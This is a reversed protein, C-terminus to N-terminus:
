VLHDADVTVASSTSSTITGSFSVKDGAKLDSAKVDGDGNIKTDADVNVVFNLVSEGFSVAAKVVNGSVSIVKAGLVRITGNPGLVAGTASDLKVLAEAKLGARANLYGKEGKDDNKASAPSGAIFLALFSFVILGKAINKM